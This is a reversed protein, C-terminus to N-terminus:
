LKSGDVLSLYCSSSPSVSNWFIHKNSRLVTYQYTIIGACTVTTTVHQLATPPKCLNSIDTKKSSGCRYLSMSDRYFCRCWPEWLSLSGTLWRKSEHPLIPAKDQKHIVPDARSVKSSVRPHVSLKGLLETWHVQLLYKVADGPADQPSYTPLRLYWTQQYTTWLRGWMVASENRIPQVKEGTRNM